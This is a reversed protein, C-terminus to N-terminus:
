MKLEKMKTRVMTWYESQSVPANLGCSPESDCSFESESNRGQLLCAASFNLIHINEIGPTHLVFGTTFLEISACEVAGVFFNLNQIKGAMTMNATFFESDSHEENNPVCYGLGALGMGYRLPAATVKHTDAIM